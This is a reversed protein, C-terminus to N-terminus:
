LCAVYVKLHDLLDDEKVSIFGAPMVPRSIIFIPINAALAENIKVSLLGSEGSEKTLIGTINHLAILAAENGPMEMILKEKPFGAALAQELSSDRPLIRFVTENHQWYRTLQRITQVGTLALLKKVPHVSLYDMAADYSEFYNVLPHVTRAPYEREFRLVPLGAEAIAQHLVTAFPHSAHVIVRVGQDKCFAQLAAPTLAGHRYTGYTQSPMDIESKTSYCYPLGAQELLAMTKRGETTGGFVLIM